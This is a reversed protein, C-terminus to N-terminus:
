RMGTLLPAEGLSNIRGWVQCLMGTTSSTSSVFTKDWKQALRKLQEDQSSTVYKPLKSYDFIDAAPLSELSKPFNYVKSRPDKVWHVGPNYLVRELGHALSAVAVEREPAVPEFIIAAASLRSSYSSLPPTDPRPERM